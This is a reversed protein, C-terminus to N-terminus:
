VSIQFEKKLVATKVTATTNIISGLFCVYRQVPSCKVNFVWSILTMINKIYHRYFWFYADLETFLCFLLSM